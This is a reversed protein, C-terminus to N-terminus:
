ESLLRKMEVIEQNQTRVIDNALQVVESRPNLKLVQQAMMIAMNHHMVMGQLYAKDKDAGSYKSLDPMMPRYSSVYTSTPYWQKKWGGMMTIEKEQAAIINQALARVKENQTTQLIARSSDVAEQHHPVMEFVFQEESSVVHNQMGMMNSHGSMMGGFTGSFSTTRLFLIFVIIVLVGITVYLGANNKTM